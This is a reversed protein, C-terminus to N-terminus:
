SDKSKDIDATMLEKWLMYWLFTLPITLAHWVAHADIILLIPPFDCIEFLASLALMTNCLVCLRISYSSSSSESSASSLAALIWTLWLLAHLISIAICTIMHTTHTIATSTLLIYLYVASPVCVAACCLSVLSVSARRGLVARLALLTSYTVLVFATSYDLPTTYINKKGHYAASSLWAVTHIISYLQVWPFLYSTSGEYQKSMSYIYYMHPITNGLSFICAAPEQM